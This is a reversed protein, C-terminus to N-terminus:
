HKAALALPKRALAAQAAVDVCEALAGAARLSSLFTTLHLVTHDQQLDTFPRAPSGCALHRVLAQMDNPTCCGLGRM